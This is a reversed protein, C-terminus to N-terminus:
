PLVTEEAIDFKKMRYRITGESVDFVRAVERRNWDAADLAALLEERTMMVPEGVLESMRALNRDAALWLRQVESKFERINGPWDRGELRRCLQKYEGNESVASKGGDCLGLVHELLLPIDDLRGALPPLAIPIENLRHYLDARFLNKRVRDQLDHNTAAILRFAVHKEQNEGLRRVRKSELVELLKAQFVTDTDAIENLYFTGGEAQALLGKRDAHAGTFAGRKFGFLESEVMDRPIAAANVSVFEGTRGSHYHVYRAMLDKGTGTEGTLLVTMESPAINAAFELLGKMAKNRTIITPLKADAAPRTTKIRGAKKMHELASAVKKIYPAVGELTFYDHAMHLLATSEADPYLGSTAALFRTVALEYRSSIMNFLDIAKTFWNRAEEAKKEHASLQAYLRYCAAIEARENIKRAVELAEDTYIRAQDYHQQALYVDGLLRKIQSVLASEPAVTQAKILAELLVPLAEQYEGKLYLFWGHYEALNAEDRRYGVVAKCASGLSHEATKFEGKLAHVICCYMHFVGVTRTPFESIVKGTESLELIALQLSGTVFHIAARNVQLQQAKAFNGGKEYYEISRSLTELAGTVNGCEFKLYALRNLSRAAQEFNDVRLFTAYSEVLPEQAEEKLNVAQLHWAKLYKAFAYEEHRDTLKYFQIAIDAHQQEYDGIYLKAESMLLHFQGEWDSGAAQSEIAQLAELAEKHKGQDILKKVATLKLM